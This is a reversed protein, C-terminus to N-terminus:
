RFTDTAMRAAPELNFLGQRPRIEALKLPRGNRIAMDPVSTFWAGLDFWPCDLVYGHEAATEYVETKEILPFVMFHQVAFLFLGAMTGSVPAVSILTRFRDM